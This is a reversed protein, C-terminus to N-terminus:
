FWFSATALITVLSSVFRFLGSPGTLTEGFVVSLGMEWHNVSNLCM